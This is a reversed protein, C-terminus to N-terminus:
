LEPFICMDAAYKMDGKTLYFDMPFYLTGEQPEIKDVTEYSGSIINGSEDLILATVRKLVPDRGDLYAIAITARASMGGPDPSVAWDAKFSSYLTENAPSISIDRWHIRGDPAADKGCYVLSAITQGSGIHENAVIGSGVVTDDKAYAEMFGSFIVEFPHLNTVGVVLYHYPDTYYPAISVVIGPYEELPSYEVGWRVKSYDSDLSSLVGRVEPDLLDKGGSTSQEEAEETNKDLSVQNKTMAGCGALLVAGLMFVLFVSKRM